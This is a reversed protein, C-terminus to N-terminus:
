QAMSSIVCLSGSGQTLSLILGLHARHPSLYVPEHAHGQNTIWENMNGEMLLYDNLEGQMGPM